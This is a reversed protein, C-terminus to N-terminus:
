RDEWCILKGDRYVPEADKLWNRMLAPEVKILVDPIIKRMEEKMIEAMRPAALHATAEPMESFIEDHIVMPLRTGYLPSGLEKLYCEETAKILAQKMGLAARRQFWDNCSQTYDMGGRITGLIDRRGSAKAVGGALRFYGPMEPNRAKWAPRLKDRVVALCHECVPPYTRGKYETVKSDGCSSASDVLICFRVGAYTKGNSATTSGNSKERAALTVTADGGGGPLTFNITKAADRTNKVQKSTSKLRLAEEYSIGLIEATLDTHVDKGANLTDALRSRGFLELCAQALACLEIGAYDNSCFVYGPRARFCARVPGRRPMQQIVGDYSARFSSVLVNPRLNLPQEIGKRLFPVYTTRVKEFEDDGYEMLVEDGSELLTDRDTQIHGKETTISKLPTIDYGSGDCAKCIVQPEKLPKKGELARLRNKEVARSSAQTRKGDCKPCRATCGYASAVARKVSSQSETFNPRLFGVERFRNRYENFKKCVGDWLEDLREKDVRLGWVAGLHLAFAAYVERQMSDRNAARRQLQSLAVQLTNRVDDKPYQVAEVPWSSMPTGDLRGYISLNGYEDLIQNEKADTRGTELELCKALSYRGDWGKGTRPDILYHGHAIADLAQAIQIDYIRGEKYWRFVRPLLHPYYQCVLAMDYAINAGVLTPTDARGMVTTLHLVGRSMDLLIPERNLEYFSCCVPPPALLGPEIPHSEIDFAVYTV